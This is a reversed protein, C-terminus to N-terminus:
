DARPSPSLAAVPSTCKIEQLQNIIGDFRSMVAMQLACLKESESLKAQVSALEETLKKNQESLLEKEKKESRLGEELVNFKNNSVGQNTIADSQFSSILHEYDKVQKILSLNFQFLRSNDQHKLNLHHSISEQIIMSVDQVCHTIRQGVMMSINHQIEPLPLDTRQSTHVRSHESVGERGGQWSNDPQNGNDSDFMGLETQMPSNAQVRGNAGAADNYPMANQPLVEKFRTGISADETMNNFNDDDGQNYAGFQAEGSGDNSGFCGENGPQLMSTGEMEM